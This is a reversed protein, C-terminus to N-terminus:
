PSVEVKEKCKMLKGTLKFQTIFNYIKNSKEYPMKLNTYDKMKITALLLMATRMNQCM